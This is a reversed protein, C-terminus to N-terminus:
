TSTRQNRNYLLTGEGNEHRDLKFSACFGQMLFQYAPFSDDLKTKMIILNFWSIPVTLYGGIKWFSFFPQRFHDPPSHSLSQYCCFYSALFQSSHHFIAFSITFFLKFLHDPFGYPDYTTPFYNRLRKRHILYSMQLLPFKALLKM